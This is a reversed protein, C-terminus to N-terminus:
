WTHYTNPSVCCKNNPTNHKRSRSCLGSPQIHVHSTGRSKHDTNQCCTAIDVQVYPRPLMWLFVVLCVYMRHYWSCGLQAFVNISLCHLTSLVSFFAVDCVRRRVRVKRATSYVGARVIAWECPLLSLLILAYPFCTMIGVKLCCREAQRGLGTALMRRRTLFLIINKNSESNPERVCMAEVNRGIYVKEATKRLRSLRCLVNCAYVCELPLM